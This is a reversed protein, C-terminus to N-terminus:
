RAKGDLYWWRGSQLVFRSNEHLQDLRGQPGRFDAIFEVRGRPSGEPVAPADVIELGLWQIRRDLELESPRTGPHWTDLLHESRGLVFATYRSRMLQEPTNARDGALTPGCCTDFSDGGCPCLEARGSTM